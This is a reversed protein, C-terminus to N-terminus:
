VITALITSGEVSGVAYIRVQLGDILGFLMGDRQELVIQNLIADDSGEENGVLKDGERATL